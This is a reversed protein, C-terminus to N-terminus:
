YYPSTTSHYFCRPIMLSMLYSSISRILLKMLARGSEVFGL